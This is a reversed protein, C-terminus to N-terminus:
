TPIFRLRYGVNRRVEILDGLGAHIFARRVRFVLQRIHSEGPSTADLSLRMLETINVYGRKEDPKSSETRMRRALVELLEYQPTTLHVRRGDIVAVGGGGGTPAQLSMPREPLKTTHPWPLRYTPVDFPEALRPASAVFFMAVDGFRLRDGHALELVALVQRDNCYTGQTSGLDRVTWTQNFALLAHRRSVSPDLLILKGPEISRGVTTSRDLHHPQGWVDVLAAQTTGLARADIQEPWIPSCGSLAEWCETCLVGNSVTRQVCVACQVSCLM